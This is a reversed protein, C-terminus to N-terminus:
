STQKGKLSGVWWGISPPSQRKTKPHGAPTKKAQSNETHAHGLTRTNRTDTERTWVSQWGPPADRIHSLHPPRPAQLACGGTPYPPGWPRSDTQASFLSDHNIPNTHPLTYGGWNVSCHLTVVSQTAFTRLAFTRFALTRLPSHINGGGWTITRPPEPALCQSNCILCLLNPQFSMIKCLTM